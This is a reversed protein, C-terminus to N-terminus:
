ICGTCRDGDEYMVLGIVGEWVWEDLVKFVIVVPIQIIQGSILICVQQRASIVDIVLANEHISITICICNHYGGGEFTTDQLPRM